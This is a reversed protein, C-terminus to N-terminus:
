RPSSRRLLRHRARSSLSPRTGDRTVRWRIPMDLTDTESGLKAALSLMPPGEPSAPPLAAKPLGQLKADVAASPQDTGGLLALRMAEGIAATLAAANEVNQFKGKTAKPICAMKRAEEADLGIGVVHVALGPQTKAIDEAAACCGPRMDANDAIIVISGPSRDKMARAAERMALVVPGKGRPNLKDLPGIIRDASGADVPM